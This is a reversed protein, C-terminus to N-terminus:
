ASSVRATGAVSAATAAARIEHLRRAIGVCVGEVRYASAGIGVRRLQGHRTAIPEGVGDHNHAPEDEDPGDGLVDFGPAM